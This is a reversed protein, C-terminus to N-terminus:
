TAARAAVRAFAEAAVWLRRKSRIGITDAGKGWFAERENQKKGIM